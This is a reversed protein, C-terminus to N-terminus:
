IKSKLDEVQINPKSIKDSAAKDPPNTTTSSDGICIALHVLRDQYPSTDQIYREFMLGYVHVKIHAGTTPTLKTQTSPLEM